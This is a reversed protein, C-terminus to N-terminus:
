SYATADLSEGLTTPHSCPDQGFPALSRSEDLGAIADSQQRQASVVAQHALAVPLENDELGCDWLASRCDSEGAIVPGEQTKM